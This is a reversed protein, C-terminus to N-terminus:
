RPVLGEAKRGPTRLSHQIAAESGPTATHRPEAEAEDLDPAELSKIAGITAMLVSKTTATLQRLGLM